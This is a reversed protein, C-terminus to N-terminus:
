KKLVCPIPQFVQSDGLRFSLYHYFEKRERPVPIWDINAIRIFCNNEYPIVSLDVQKSVHFICDGNLLIGFRLIEEDKATVIKQSARCEIIKEEWEDATVHNYVSDEVPNTPLFYHIEINSCEASNLFRMEDRKIINREISTLFTM